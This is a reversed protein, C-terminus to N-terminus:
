AAAPSTRPCGGPRRRAIRRTPAPFHCPLWARGVLREGGCGPRGDTRVIRLSFLGAAAEPYPASLCPSREDPCDDRPLRSALLPPPPRPLHLAAVRPHSLRARTPVSRLHGGQHEKLLRSNVVKGLGHLEQSDRVLGQERRGRVKERSFPAKGGAPTKTISGSRM